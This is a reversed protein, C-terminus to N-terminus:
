FNENKIINFLDNFNIFHLLYIFCLHQLYELKASIDYSLPSIIVVGRTGEPALIVYGM